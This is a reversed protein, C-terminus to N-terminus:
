SIQPGITTDSLFGLNAGLKLLVKAGALQALTHEVAPLSYLERMVFENLLTSDVCIRIQGNNKWVPVMAACWDMPVQIPSIIGMEEM